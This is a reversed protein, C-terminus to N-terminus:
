RAPFICFAECIPMSIGAHMVEGNLSVWVDAGLSIATLATALLNKESGEELVVWRTTSDYTINLAPRDLFQGILNVKAPGQYDAALAAGGLVLVFVVLLIKKM